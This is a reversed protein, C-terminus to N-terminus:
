LRHYSGSPGRRKEGCWVRRRCIVLPKLDTSRKIAPQGDFSLGSEGEFGRSDVGGVNDFNGDGVADYNPTGDPNTQYTLLAIRNDFKAQYLTASASLADGNYRLGVDLNDATEPELETLESAKKTELLKDTM